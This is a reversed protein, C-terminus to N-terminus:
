YTRYNCSLSRCGDCFVCSTFKHICYNPKSWHFTIIEIRFQPFILISLLIHHIYFLHRFFWTSLIYSIANKFNLNIIHLTIATFSPCDRWLHLPSELYCYHLELFHYHFYWTILSSSKLIICVFTCKSKFFSPIGLRGMKNKAGKKWRSQNLRQNWRAWM